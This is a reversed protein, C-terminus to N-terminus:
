VTAVAIGWPLTLDGHFAAAGAPWCCPKAKWSPALGVAVYGYTQIFGAIDV